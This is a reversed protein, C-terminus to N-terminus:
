YKEEHPEELDPSDGTASVPHPLYARLDNRERICKSSSAIAVTCYILGFGGDALDHESEKEM